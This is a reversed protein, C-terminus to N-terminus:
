GLRGIGAILLLGTGALFLAVRAREGTLAPFHPVIVKVALLWAISFDLGVFLATKLYKLLVPNM